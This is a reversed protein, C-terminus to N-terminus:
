LYPARSGGFGPRRAPLVRVAGKSRTLSSNCVPPPSCCPLRRCAARLPTMGARAAMPRSSPKCPYQFPFRGCTVQLHLEAGYSDFSPLTGALLKGALPVVSQPQQRVTAAEFRQKEAVGNLVHVTWEICSLLSQQLHELDYGVAGYLQSGVLHQFTSPGALIALQWHRPAKCSSCTGAHDSGQHAVARGAQQCLPASDLWCACSQRWCRPTRHNSYRVAAGAHSAQHHTIRM